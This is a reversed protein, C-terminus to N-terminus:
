DVQRLWLCGSRRTLAFHTEHPQGSGDDSATHVVLEDPIAAPASGVPPKSSTDMGPEASPVSVSHGAPAADIALLPRQMLQGLGRIDAVVAGDGYGGWLMLGALRNPDHAAFADVVAQKLETLNGACLVGPPTHPTVPAGVSASTAPPPAELTAHLDSCVRDTFIPTGDAGICRHIDGQAFVSSAPLLFLLLIALLRM